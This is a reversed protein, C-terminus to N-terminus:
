REWENSPAGALVELPSQPSGTESIIIAVHNIGEEKIGAVAGAVTGNVGGISTHLDDGSKGYCSYGSPCRLRVLSLGAVLCRLRVSFRRCTMEWRPHM